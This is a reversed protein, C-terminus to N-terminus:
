RAKETRWIEGRGTVILLQDDLRTLTKFGDDRGRVEPLGGGPVLLSTCLDDRRVAVVAGCDKAIFFLHDEHAESASWERVSTPRGEHTEAGCPEFRPPLRLTLGQWQGQRRARFIEARTGGAWYEGEEPFAAFARFHIPQFGLGRLETTLWTGPEELWLHLRSETAALIPERPHGTWVVRSGLFELDQRPPMPLPRLAGDPERLTVQGRSMVLVRGEDSVALDDLHDPGTITTTSVWSLGREDLSLEFLWGALVWGQHAIGAAWVRRAGGPLPRPDLAVRRLLPEKASPALARASIQAGARGSSARDREVLHLDRWALLARDRDVAAVRPEATQGGALPAPAPVPQLERAYPAFPSWGLPRCHEPDEPVGLHLELADPEPLPLLEGSRPRVEELTALPALPVWRRVRDIRELREERPGPVVSRPAVVLGAAEEPEFGAVAGRLRELDVTVVVLRIEDEGLARDPRDGSARVGGRVVLPGEIRAVGGAHDLSVLFIAAEVGALEVRTTEGGCGASALTLAALVTSRPSGFAGRTNGTLGM